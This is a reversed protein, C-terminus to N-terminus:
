IIAQEHEDFDQLYKIQVDYKKPDTRIKQQITEAFTICEDFQKKYNNKKVPDDVKDMIIKLNQGAILFCKKVTPLIGLFGKETAMKFYHDGLNKYYDFAVIYNSGLCGIGIPFKCPKLERNM